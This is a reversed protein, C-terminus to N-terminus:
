ELDEFSATSRAHRYLKLIKRRAVLCIFGLFEEDSSYKFKGGKLSKWLDVFTDQLIDLADERTAVRFRIFRFLDDKTEAFLMRFTNANGECCEKILWELSKSTEM